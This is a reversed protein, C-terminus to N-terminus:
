KGFVNKLVDTVRDAPNKRINIEEQAVYYFIGDLAKQTVYSNIDTNVPESSFRNYASFVDKWYKTADVKKLAEEVIPMFASTLEPSTSTRLYGTAATDTGKLIQVADKVTMKKIAAIFIPAAEKSADEAARNMSEVANDVMKGMGILRMKKEIAQVEKPMLIKVAADKFFGNPSSLKQGSKEAGLVLAEKLGAVIENSSLDSSSSNKNLLSSAKEFLGGPKKAGEQASVSASFFLITILTLISKM